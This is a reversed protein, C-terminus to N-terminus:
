RQVVMRGEVAPSVTGKAAIYDMVKTAMLVGGSPDILVKGKTFSSYGDGGTAMFDNTVVRYLKNADLPAGGVNVSLVRSGPPKTPDYTMKIGSVQPFRGQVNEVQSIGNELGALLDSGKMEIMTVTNGFPLESFIDKRTLTAGAEYQKDARIGGGNIVAADSQLGDRIADAFLNGIAAEVGRVTTRRSDLATATKGVPLALEKDLTDNFTKVLAAVEPDPTVGMTTLYKWGTPTVKMVPANNRVEREVLLDVVGLYQADHGAKFIITGGEYIAMPDHDHGGMIVDIGKVNRALARDEVLDLHTLAVIVQAGADRLQKVMATATAEIPKFEISGGPSSLHTTDTTLLGFFGINFDGVKRIHSVAMGGFPKGDKDVVNSIVWSFKSEGVRKTVLEPGFDFEHNGLVALDTGVANMLQVMQSGKTLGSMISPSILDGGFTFITNPNRAREAKVLTMLPAFGGKGDIPAIEYVDNVHVLTLNLKQAFAGAASLLFAAAVLAVFSMRRLIGSM